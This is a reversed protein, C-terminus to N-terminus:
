AHSQEGGRRQRLAIGFTPHALLDGFPGRRPDTIRDLLASLAGRVLEAQLGSFERSREEHAAAMFPSAISDLSACSLSPLTRTRRLLRAIQTTAVSAAEVAKM